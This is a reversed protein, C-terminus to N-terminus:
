VLDLDEPFLAVAAPPPLQDKLLLLRKRMLKSPLQKPGADVEIDCCLGHLYLTLTDELAQQRYEALVEDRDSGPRKVQLYDRKLRWAREHVEGNARGRLESDLAENFSRAFDAGGRQVIEQALARYLVIHTDYFEEDLMAIFLCNEDALSEMAVYLQEEEAPPQFAVLARSSGGNFDLALYPVLILRLNPLIECVRPPLAGAPDLVLRQTEREDLPVVSFYSLSEGLPIMMDRCEAVFEATSITGSEHPLHEM